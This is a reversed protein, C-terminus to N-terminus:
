TRVTVLADMGLGDYRGNRIACPSWLMWQGYWLYPRVPPTAGPSSKSSSAIVKHSVCALHALREPFFCVRFAHRSGFSASHLNMLDWPPLGLFWETRTLTPSESVGKFSIM